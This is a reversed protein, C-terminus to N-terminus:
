SPFARVGFRGAISQRAPGSSESGGGWGGQGEVRARIYDARHVDWIGPIQERQERRKNDATRLGACRGTLRGGGRRQRQGAAARDGLNVRRRRLRDFRGWGGRRDRRCRGWGGRARGDRARVRVALDNEVRELALNGAALDAEADVQRGAVARGGAAVRHEVHHVPKAPVPVVRLTVAHANVLGGVIAVCLARQRRHDDDHRVAVVGVIGVALSCAGEGIHHYVLQDREHITAVASASGCARAM